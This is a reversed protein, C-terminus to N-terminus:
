GSVSARNRCITWSVTSRRSARCAVADPDSAGSVQSVDRGGTSARLTTSPRQARLVLLAVDDENADATDLLFDCLKEPDMRQTDALVEALRSLGQSIPANRREILGDTYLVLTAGAQLHLHHNQREFDEDLGLLLDPETELLRAWGSQGVGTPSTRRQVM